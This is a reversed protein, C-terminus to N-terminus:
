RNTLQLKRLKTITKRSPRVRLKESGYSVGYGYPYNEVWVRELQNDLKFQMTSNDQYVVTGKDLLLNLQQDWKKSYRYIFIICFKPNTKGLTLGVVVYLLIFLLSFVVVLLIDM